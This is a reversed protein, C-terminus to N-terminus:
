GAARIVALFDDVKLSAGGILAGDVDEAALIASANSPNVSGGYLIPIARAADGLVHGLTERLAVHAEEIQDVTPTRGTGVAWLPEYAIAFRAGALETTLSETLEKRIVNLTRGAERDARSEGVCVVPELGCRLAARTKAAVLANTEGYAARRESHGVIVMRAGADALMEGSIDGTFAGRPQPHIDQGGVIVSSGELAQALREILTAPACISARALAPEAALAAALQSADEINAGLGFMKWNGVILPRPASM